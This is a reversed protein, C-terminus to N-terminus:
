PMPQTHINAGTLIEVAHEYIGRQDNSWQHDHDTLAVALIDLAGLVIKRKELEADLQERCDFLLRSVADHDALEPNFLGGSSLYDTIRQELTWEGTPQHRVECSKTGRECVRSSPGTIICEGAPKPQDSM